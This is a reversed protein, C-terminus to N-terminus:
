VKKELQEQAIAKEKSKAKELNSILINKHDLEDELDKVKIKLFAVADNHENNEKIIEEKEVMMMKLDRIQIKSERNERTMRLILDTQRKEDLELNDMRDLLDNKEERLSSVKEKQKETFEILTVLKEKHKQGAAFIDDKSKGNRDCRDPCEYIIRDMITRHRM